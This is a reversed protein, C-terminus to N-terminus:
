KKTLLNLVLKAMEICQTRIIELEEYTFENSGKYDLKIYFHNDENMYVNLITRDEWWYALVKSDLDIKEIRQDPFTGNTYAQVMRDWELIREELRKNSFKRAIKSYIRQERGSESTWLIQCSNYKYNSPKMPKVVANNPLGLKSKILQEDILTCFKVEDEGDMLVSYDVEIEWDTHYSPNEIVEIGAQNDQEDTTDTDPKPDVCAFLLVVLGILLNLNKM